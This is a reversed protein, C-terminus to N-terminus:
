PHHQSVPRCDGRPECLGFGDFAAAAEGYFPVTYAYDGKGIMEAASIGTMEEIACNWIIVRKDQDIAFTADPLFEIIDTLQRQNARLAEEAQKRETVDLVYVTLGVIQHKEDYIPSYMNEWSRRSLADDGYEETLTFHEGSLAREFNRRAKKRDCEFGIVDLMNMGLRIDKGWIAKMTQQHSSNFALYGFNRDLSFIIITQPSNIMSRFKEESLRQSEQAQKRDLVSLELALIKQKLLANEKLLEQNTRAPKTM